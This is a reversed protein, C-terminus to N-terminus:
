GRPRAKRGGRAAIPRALSAGVLSRVHRDAGELAPDDPHIDITGVVSRVSDTRVRGALRADTVIRDLTESLGRARTAAAQGQLWRVNDAELTVSLPRKPM